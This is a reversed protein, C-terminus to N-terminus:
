ESRGTDERIGTRETLVTRELVDARKALVTRERDVAQAMKSGFLCSRPHEFRREQFHSSLRPPLIMDGDAFRTGNAM